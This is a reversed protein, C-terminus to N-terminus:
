KNYSFLPPWGVDKGDPMGEIIRSLISNHRLIHGIQKIRTKKLSKVFWGLEEARTFVEDNTMHESCAIEELVSAEFVLLSRNEAKVIPWIESGDIPWFCIIENFHLSSAPLFTSHSAM